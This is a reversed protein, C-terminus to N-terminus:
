FNFRGMVVLVRGSVIAGQGTGYISTPSSVTSTILGLSGSTVNGNPVAFSPHNLLNFASAGLEFGARETIPFKKTLQGAINFFGPGRFSNPQTNGFDVQQHPNAATATSAAFQTSNFCRTNVNTCHIGLITPDLLDALISGGTTASLLGPIQSNTVSFPRGSYIYLKGGLTWGGLLWNVPKKAFKPSEWIGDATVNHRTDFSTNGYAAGIDYPNYVSGLQLAHSWTYFFQGQFNHHFVHRLQATLGDYNSYGSTLVQTVTSFRPDPIANPLGGFGNPYRSATGIYANADTNSIAEDYGHNGSYNLTAVDHAGLPHEIEFSWEVVKITKFDNPYAFFTPTAFPVKGLAAQLQTLTYGQSFGTEFVQSSAVAAAQSSAPDTALGVTGFSVSPSFKNPSNGFINAAVNGAPTNAFLGAGGRFVTKGAGFPSFVIGLRPEAIVGENDLFTSHLGTVITSNYPVSAGTQYGTALFQTNFRSLCDEQCTPSSNKEFRVGYTLKLDKHVSWEDQAYFNLSYFAVHAAQLLPFSQTFKSGTNTSNVIGIAFDTLDSFTYTGIQSGSAISSDTVKNGRYNAGAQLTHRGRNWSLDDILQVQQGRRGTPLSTNSGAAAFGGGNAGGDSITFAVPMLAIAKSYDPAGFVASYYNGSVVFNNVLRPTIVYTHNLQPLIWPQNSVRNLAPNLPSTSTAQVGRDHSIRFYVRQKDTLTHDVRGSTLAETNVSSANTGFALACPVDVGFRPGSSGSVYTGPFKQKGCGLNGTSDQLLGNGTTVPVARNLGPAGNYLAFADQYLPVSAAPVHSLVYAQFQPSPVSIVGNSPLAYRLGETNFYFATKNKRIPGGLGAAYQNAVSRGRPTGTANNFFDNANLIADNYSEALNGHFSNGGSKTVYNVQGGAMRGYQASYANLIVAAEAVDNAGLTNNSAGSKNNLNYPETIDAGNMTFLAASFPLGNVNFNTNGGGVNLRLGPTSFALNTIDGGNIPMDEVQKSSYSTAQNANETQLLSSQAIVEVTQQTRAVDMVLNVAQQQGVLLDFRAVGSQLGPAQASVTYEGPKLLPFRYQGDEGTVTTRHDGTAPIDLSVTAGRVVAGAADTVDGVITGTTMTQASASLLSLFLITWTKM